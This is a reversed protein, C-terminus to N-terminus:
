LKDRIKMCCSGIIFRLTKLQPCAESIKETEIRVIQLWQIQSSKQLLPVRRLSNAFHLLEHRFKRVHLRGFSRKSCTLSKRWNWVLDWGPQSKFRQLKTSLRATSWKDMGDNTRKMMQENPWRGMKENPWKNMRDNSWKDKRDNAWKTMQWNPWKDM